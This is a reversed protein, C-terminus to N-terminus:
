PVQFDWQNAVIPLVEDALRYGGNWTFHAGDAYRMHRGDLYANYRGTEDKFLDFSSVYTARPREDAEAEYVANMMVVNATFRESEMIPLGVWYVRDVSELLTDMMEAVRIAYLDIWAETGIEFIEGSLAVDQADNGGFIAVVADPKLEPLESSLYAPWDFYDPRSLGSIFQFDVTADVVGTDTSRNVLAPGFLEAFSDGIILLDLPSAANVARLRPLTTTTSTAASGSGVVTTTTTSTPAVTTTDRRPVGRGLASDIADRPTDIRLFSSVSALPEALALAVSRATGLERREATRVLAQANLLAGGLLAVLMVILVHGAPLPRITVQNPPVSRTAM